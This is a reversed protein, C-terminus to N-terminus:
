CDYQQEDQWGAEESCRQLDLKMGQMLEQRKRGRGEVGEAPQATGQTKGM